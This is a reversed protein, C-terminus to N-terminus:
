KNIRALLDEGYQRVIKPGIGSIQLLQEESRPMEECIAYLVRDGLIRFAPVGKKRAVELRWARLEEFLKPMDPPLERARERGSGVEERSPLPKKKRVRSPAPELIGAGEMEIAAIADAKVSRGASTLTVRRFTIVSGDREFEDQTVDVLKAHTLATLLREFGSRSVKSDFSVAEDFLRGVAQGNRGSLSALVLAAVQRETEDLVRVNSGPKCRDCIGCSEGDDAPDGFHRVLAVMRCGAHTTFAQMAELQRIRHTRQDDYLKRWKPSGLSINEEPDIELGGHMWIKELAKEFIEPEIGTIKGELQSKGIRGEKPVATFIRELIRPEPYDREFFFEHTKRDSFSHLLLAESPLGDRGARGIEQYYGEVSAPLAAHIVTRVNAKDIGMGFAITAVILDIRNEIFALQVKERAPAAMGAHYAACKFREGLLRALEEAKKRTPAYVIAPLRNEGSLHEIM